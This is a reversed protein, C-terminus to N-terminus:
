FAMFLLTYLPGQFFSFSNCCFILDSHFSHADSLLNIRFANLCITGRSWASTSFLPCRMFISYPHSNQFISPMRPEYQKNLWIQFNHTEFTDLVLSLEQEKKTCCYHNVLLANCAFDNNQRWIWGVTLLGSFVSKVRIVMVWWYRMSDDIDICWDTRM